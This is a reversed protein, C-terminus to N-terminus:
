PYINKAEPTTPYSAVQKVHTLIFSHCSSTPCSVHWHATTPFIFCYVFSSGCLDMYLDDECMLSNVCSAFHKNPRALSPLHCPNITRQMNHTTLNERITFLHYITATTHPKNILVITSFLLYYSYRLYVLIHFNTTPHENMWNTWALISYLSRAVEM